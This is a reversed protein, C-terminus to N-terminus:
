ASDKANFPIVKNGRDHFREAILALLQRALRAKGTLPLEREGGAWIVHLANDGADFGRGAGVRNAAIMDVGKALRKARAHEVMAETEAAFGVTFPAQPLAAVEALIDPNRVLTLALHGATKKLKHGAPREPRYDAVAAVAIFIDCNVM